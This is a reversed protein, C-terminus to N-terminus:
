RTEKRGSQRARPRAMGAGRRPRRGRSTSTPSSAIRGHQNETDTVKGNTARFVIPNQGNQQPPFRSALVDTAEQSDTGPLELNNSTNAGVSKFLAGVVLLWGVLVLWKKHAAFLGLRHLLRPV